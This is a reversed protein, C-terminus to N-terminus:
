LAPSRLCDLTQTGTIFNLALTCHWATCRLAFCTSVCSAPNQVCVNRAAQTIRGQTGCSPTRAMKCQRLKIYFATQVEFSEQLVSRARLCLCQRAVNEHCGQLIYRPLGAVHIQAGRSCTDPVGRCCTDPVGAVHIQAGRSRTDPCGQLLLTSMTALNLRQTHVQLLGHDAQMAIDAHM